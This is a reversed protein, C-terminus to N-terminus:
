TIKIINHKEIELDQLYLKNQDYGKITGVYSKKIGNAIYDVQVITFNFKIDKIITDLYEYFQEEKEQEAEIKDMEEYLRRIGAGYEPLGAFPAWKDLGRPKYQHM